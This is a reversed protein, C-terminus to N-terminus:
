LSSSRDHSLQPIYRPRSPLRLPQVTATVDRIPEGDNISREPPKFLGWSHAWGTRPQLAAALTQPHHRKDQESVERTRTRQLRQLQRLSFFVVFFVFTLSSSRCRCSRIRAATEPLPSVSSDKHHQLTDWRSRQRRSIGRHVPAGHEGEQMWRRRDSVNEETQGHRGSLRSRDETAASESQRTLSTNLWHSDTNKHRRLLHVYM